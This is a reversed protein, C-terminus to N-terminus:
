TRGAVHMYIDADGQTSDIGRVRHTVGNGTPSIMTMIMKGLFYYLFWIALLVFRAFRFFDYM